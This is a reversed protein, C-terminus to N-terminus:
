DRNKFFNSGSLIKFCTCDIYGWIAVGQAFVGYSTYITLDTWRDKQV